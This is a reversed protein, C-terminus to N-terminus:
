GGHGLERLNTEIFADLKRAEAMQERLTATLRTVKEEVPEGDDELAVADSGSPGHAAVVKVSGALTASM